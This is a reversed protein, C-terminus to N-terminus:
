LRHIPPRLDLALSTSAWSPEPRDPMPVFGAHWLWDQIGVLVLCCVHGDGQAGDAPVSSSSTLAESSPASAAAADHGAADAELHPAHAPMSSAHRGQVAQGHCPADQGLILPLHLGWARGILLSLLLFVLWRKRMSEDYPLAVRVRIRAAGDGDDFSM